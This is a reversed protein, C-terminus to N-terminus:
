AAEWGIPTVDTTNPNGGITPLVTTDLLKHLREVETALTFCVEEDECRAPACTKARQVASQIKPSM